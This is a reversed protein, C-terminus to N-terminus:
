RGVLVDAVKGASGPTGMFAKTLVDVLGCLRRLEARLQAAESKPTAM